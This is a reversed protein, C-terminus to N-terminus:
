LNLEQYLNKYKNKLNTVEEDKELARQKLENIENMLENINKPENLEIEELNDL